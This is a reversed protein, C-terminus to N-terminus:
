KVGCKRESEIYWDCGHEKLDEYKGSIRRSGPRHFNVQEAGFVRGDGKL